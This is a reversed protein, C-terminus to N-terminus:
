APSRPDAAEVLQTSPGYTQTVVQPCRLCAAIGEQQWWRCTPRLQCAPADQVVTPLVRVIRIALRCNLGDFHQCANGACPAAFRFVETPEVPQSLALLQKTVPLPRTLQTLRPEDVTGGIVGFAVCDTMEPQASPCLPLQAM